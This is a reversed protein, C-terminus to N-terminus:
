LSDSLTLAGTGQFSISCTVGGSVGPSTNFGTIIITGSVGNEDADFLFQAGTYTGADSACVIEDIFAKQGTDGLVLEFEMSGSWSTQGPLFEKWNQGQRSVDATDRVVNLSFGTSYNAQNGNSYEIKATKGHFPVTNYAM